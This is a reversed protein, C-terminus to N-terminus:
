LLFRCAPWVASRVVAGACSQCWSPSGRGWATGGARSVGARPAGAGLREGLGRQDVKGGAQHDLKAGANVHHHQLLATEDEPPRERINVVSLYIFGSLIYAINFGLFIAIPLSVRWWSWDSVGTLKTIAM